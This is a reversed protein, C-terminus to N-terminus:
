KYNKSEIKYFHSNKKSSNESRLFLIKAEVKYFTIIKLYTNYTSIKSLVVKYKIIGFEYFNGKISWCVSFLAHIGAIKYNCVATFQGYTFLQRVFERHNQPFVWLDELLLLSCCGDLRFIELPDNMFWTTLIKPM